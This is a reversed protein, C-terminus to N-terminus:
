DRELIAPLQSFSEILADPKLAALFKEDRIGSSVAVTKLRLEKGTIVDAETDGIIVASSSSMHKRILEIKVDYGEAESHGSLIEEFNKAIGLWKLQQRLHEPKRRLSVLFIQHNQSVLELTQQVDPFLRDNKLYEIEEIRIRFDDLFAKENDADIGSQPLLERWAVKARKANWYTHQDLPKGNHLSVVETYVQYHRAAVDLLTGDLDCFIKM